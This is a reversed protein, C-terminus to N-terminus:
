TQQIFSKCQAFKELLLERDGKELATILKDLRAQFDQRVLAAQQNLLQLDAVLDENQALVRSMVDFIARSNPTSFGSLSELNAFRNQLSDALAILMLHTVAQVYAAILDHEESSLHTLRAGYKYLLEEFAEAKKASKTVKTLIVNQGALSSVDGAFMTHMGLVEVNEPLNSVLHPLASGKISCNEVLLQGAKLHLKMEAALGPIASMPVSLIIVDSAKVVEELSSSNKQDYVLVEFGKQSLFQEFWQGMVGLGGIIGFTRFPAPYFEERPFSGFIRIAATEGTEEICYRNLAEICNKVSTQHYGGELELYFVFVGKSDPRSHISLLNVEHEQSILGLMEYLLGKRDRGPDIMLATVYSGRSDDEQTERNAKLSLEASGPSLLVFRTQNGPADSIERELVNLKSGELAAVSAIAAVNSGLEEVRKAAQATSALPMLRAKPLKERLFRSCQQLAQPHSYVEEITELRVGKPVGLAQEVPMAYSSQIYIQGAFRRLLDLTTTVPGEIVNEIPIFGHSVEGLSLKEFVEYLSGCPLGSAGPRYARLAAETFTGKPGLYAISQNVSAGKSESSNSQSSTAM